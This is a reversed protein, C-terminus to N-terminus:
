LSISFPCKFRNTFLHILGALKQYRTVCTGPYQTLNNVQKFEVNSGKLKLRLENRALTAIAVCRGECHFHRASPPNGSPVSCPALAHPVRPQPNVCRRQRQRRRLVDAASVDDAADLATRTGHYTGADALGAILSGRTDASWTAGDHSPLSNLTLQSTPTLPRPAMDALLPRADDCGSCVAPIVAGDRAVRSIFCMPSM